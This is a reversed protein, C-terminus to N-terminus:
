ISLCIIKAMTKSVKWAYAKFIDKLLNLAPKRYRTQSHPNLEQAPLAPGVSVMLAVPSNAKTTKFIVM